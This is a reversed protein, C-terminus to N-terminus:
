CEKKRGQAWIECEIHSYLDIFVEIAEASLIFKTTIGDENTFKVRFDGGVLPAIEVSRDDGIAKEYRVTFCRELENMENGGIAKNLV